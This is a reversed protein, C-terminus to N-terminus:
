IIWNLFPKMNRGSILAIKGIEQNNALLSKISLKVVTTIGGPVFHYHFVALNLKGM